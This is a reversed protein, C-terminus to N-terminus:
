LSIGGVAAQLIMLADLSTVQRDGSVDAAPDCAGSAALRLAIAADAPTIYGDSNLDGKQPTTLWGDMSEFPYRDVAGAGITYPQSGDSPNGTCAHYSWYNGGDIPGNDWVNTNGNDAIDNNMFNNHYINNDNSDYVFISRWENNSLTNNIITNNNSSSWVHMGCGNFSANNNIIKNHNSGSTVHIGAGANHAVHNDSVTSNDASDLRIGYKENADAYNNTITNSHGSIRIGYRGNENVYNDELTNNNSDWCISMGIDKNMNASNNTFINNDSWGATIGRFNGLVINDSVVSNEIDFLFMGDGNSISNDKIIINSSEAITLHTGNLNSITQGHIDYFYYVPKGNVMNSTDISNDYGWEVLLGCGNDSNANNNKLTIDSSGILWIGYINNIADVNEIISNEVKYFLIGQGNGTMTLDRVTISNSDVVCIYGANWSSDIVINEQEILYYITKGNITNSTDIDHVGGGGVNFNYINNNITNDRLICNRVDDLFIGEENNSATNNVLTNNDCHICIGIESNFSVNNNILTANFSDWDLEIGHDGNLCVDNDRLRNDFCDDRLCIGVGDNFDINNTSITNNNSPGLLLIGRGQNFNILNNTITNNSSEVRIGAGEWEDESGTVDFGDVTCGDVMVTIPSGDGEADVVPKGEGTDVGTLILRKDLDVNEHYAGSRVEVTDGESAADVAQQIKMYDIGDGGDDDVYWTTAAAGV